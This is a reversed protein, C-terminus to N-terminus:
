PTCPSETCTFESPPKRSRKAFALAMRDLGERLEDRSSTFSIRIHKDNGFAVGPVVAVGVEELLYETLEASGEGPRYLEAVEPFVYFAGAPAVCHVGDIADLGAVILDRRQRFEEIMEVVFAEAGSLAAVAGAMAFSTPNSTAHSQITAVASIVPQPGLVYGVRWGTMAYTKSFSSVVVITNPFRVALSAASAFRTGSYVFREYTEDVILLIQRESCAEALTALGEPELVAGTPNCPSNLLVARTQPRFAKIMREAHLAFGDSASGEVLVPEAGSLRVQEPFTVWCPSPIVVEDGPEFLALALELLAAKAGVTIVVEDLSRWPAGWTKAFRELLGNRLDVLGAAPTYRTFGDALSQRATEVAVSPSPFDPEGAGFSLIDAGQSQLEAVRRTVRM